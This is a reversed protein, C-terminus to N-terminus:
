NETTITRRGHPVATAVVSIAKFGRCVGYAVEKEVETWAHLMKM